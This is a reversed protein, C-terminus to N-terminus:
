SLLLVKDKCVRKGGFLEFDELSQKLEDKLMATLLFSSNRRTLNVYGGQHFHRMLLAVKQETTLGPSVGSVWEPSYRNPSHWGAAMVPM